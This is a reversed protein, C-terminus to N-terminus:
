EERDKRGIYGLYFRWRADAAFGTATVTFRLANAPIVTPSITWIRASDAPTATSTVTQAGATTANNYLVYTSDNGGRSRALQQVTFTYTPITGGSKAFGAITDAMIVFAHDDYMWVDAINYVMVTDSTGATVGFERINNNTQAFVNVSFLLVLIVILKKM